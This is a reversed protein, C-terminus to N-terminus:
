SYLNSKTMSQMDHSTTSNTETDDSSTSTSKQLESILEISQSSESSVTPTPLNPSSEPTTLTSPTNKVETHGSISILQALINLVEDPSYSPRSISPNNHITTSPRAITPNSHVITKCKNQSTQKNLYALPRSILKSKLTPIRSTPKHCNNLQHSTAPSHSSSAPCM